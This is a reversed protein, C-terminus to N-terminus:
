GRLTRSPPWHALPDYQGDPPRHWAPTPPQQEAEPQPDADAVPEPQEAEPEAPAVPEPEALAAPLPEGAQQRFVAAWESLEDATLAGLAIAQRCVDVQLPWAPDGEGVVTGFLGRLEAVAQRELESPVLRGEAVDEAVSMPADVADRKTMATM